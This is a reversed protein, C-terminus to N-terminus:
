IISWRFFQCTLSEAHVVLWKPYRMLYVFYASLSRSLWWTYM